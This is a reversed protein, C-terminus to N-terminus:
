VDQTDKLYEFGSHLMRVNQARFLKGHSKRVGVVSHGGWNRSFPKLCCRGVLFAGGLVGHGCWRSCVRLSSLM